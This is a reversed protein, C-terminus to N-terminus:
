CLRAPPFAAGDISHRTAGYRRCFDPEDTTTCYPHWFTSARTDHARAPADDYGLDLRLPIVALPSAEPCIEASGSTTHAPLRTPYISPVLLHGPCGSTPKHRQLHLSVFVLTSLFLSAAPM